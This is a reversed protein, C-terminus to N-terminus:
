MGLAIVPSVFLFMAAMVFTLHNPSRQEAASVNVSSGTNAPTTPTAGAGRGPKVTQTADVGVEVTSRGPQAVVTPQGPNVITTITIAGNQTATVITQQPITGEPLGAMTTSIQAASTTGSGASASTVGTGFNAQALMQKAYQYGSPIMVPGPEENPGLRCVKTVDDARRYDYDVAGPCLNELQHWGICEVNAEKETPLLSDFFANKVARDTFLDWSAPPNALNIDKSVCEFCQGVPFGESVCPTSVSM